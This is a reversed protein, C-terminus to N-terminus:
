TCYAIQFCVLANYQYLNWVLDSSPQTLARVETLLPTCASASASEAAKILEVAEIPCHLCGSDADDVFSVIWGM